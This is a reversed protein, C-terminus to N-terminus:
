IGKLGSAKLAETVYKGQTRRVWKGIAPGSLNDPIALGTIGEWAQGAIKLATAGDINPNELTRGRSDAEAVLALGKWGLPSRQANVILNVQKEARMKLFQHVQMHFKSAIKAAKKFEVPMRLRDSMQEAPQIGRQDHGYHHPWEEPPTLAKGLDHCLTAYVEVETAGMKVAEQISLMTHNYSDGEPHHQPPGAPVDCLAHIEPFFQKLLRTKRLTDFFFRPFSSRLAKRLEECVREAPLAAYDEDSIEDIYDFVVDHISFDLQASFRAARFARLADDKFAITTPILRRAWVSAIGGFPDIFNGDEDQAIANVTFDRRSLDEELTVSPDCYVEFDAHGPGVKREKRSFAFEGVGPVQFVPFYKGILIATPYKQLFEEPTAGIVVYDLDKPKRGLIKDRVAGGVLYIKM